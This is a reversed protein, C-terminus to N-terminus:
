QERKIIEYNIKVSYLSFSADESAPIPIDTNYHVGAFKLAFMISPYRKDLRIHILKTTKTSSYPLYDEYLTSNDENWVTLKLYGKYNIIISTIVKYAEADGLDNLPIVFYNPLYTTMNEETYVYIKNNADDYWCLNGNFDFYPNVNALYGLLILSWKKYEFDYKYLNSYSVLNYLINAYQNYLLKSTSFNMKAINNIAESLLQKEYGNTTFIGQSTNICISNGVNVIDNFNKVGLEVADLFQFVLSGNIEQPIYTIMEQNTFMGFNNGISCVATTSYKTPNLLKNQYYFIDQLNGGGLVQYYANYPDSHSLALKTGKIDAIDRIDNIIKYQEALTKDTNFTFGINSSLSMGKVSGAGVVQGNFDLVDESTLDWIVSEYFDLADYEKIYVKIQTVRPPLNDKPLTRLWFKLAFNTGTLESINIIKYDWIIENINDLVYTYIVYIYTAGVIFGNSFQGNKDLIADESIDYIDVLNTDHFDGPNDPLWCFKDGGLTVPPNGLQQGVQSKLRLRIFSTPHTNSWDEWGGGTGDYFIPLDINPTSMAGTIGSHTKFNFRLSGLIDKPIFYMHYHGLYTNQYYADLATRGFWFFKTGGGPWAPPLNCTVYPKTPDNTYEGNTVTAPILHYKKFLVGPDQEHDGMFKFRCLQGSLADTETPQIIEHEIHFGVKAGLTDNICINNTLAISQFYLGIGETGSQHLTNEESIHINDENVETIVAFIYENSTHRLYIYNGVKFHVRFDIDNDRLGIIKSNPYYNMVPNKPSYAASITTLPIRLNDIYFYSGDWSETSSRLDFLKSFYNNIPSFTKKSISGDRIYLTRNIRGFWYINNAYYFNIIGSNNRLICSDIGVVTNYNDTPIANWGSGNHYWMTYVITSSQTKKGVLILYILDTFDSTSQYLKDESIKYYNLHVISYGGSIFGPPLSFEETAVPYTSVENNKFEVNRCDNTYELSISQSGTNTLLGKFDTIKIEPM